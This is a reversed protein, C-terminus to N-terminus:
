SICLMTTLYISSWQPNEGAVEYEDGTKSKVNKLGGTLGFTPESFRMPTLQTSHSTPLLEVLLLRFSCKLQKKYNTSSQSYVNPITQPVQHPRDLLERIKQDSAADGRWNELEAM